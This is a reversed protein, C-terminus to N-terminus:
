QHNFAKEKYLESTDKAIQDWKYTTKVKDKGAIGITRALQENELLLIINTALSHADGPYIKLGTIGEDIIESLGGTNSVITPKGHIMAELAVIGFPEYLSPFVAINCQQFLLNRESDNIFGILKINNDLDREQVLTLYHELMPGKGAIVFLINPFRNIVLPAADIITEFGKERVIRGVSFIMQSFPAGLKEELLCPDGEAELMKEDIGNPLVVIKEKEVSFLSRVEKKMYNSCVIVSNAESVLQKEKKHIDHNIKSYLGNNRGYETAHITAILPKDLIRQLSIGAVGVLWDHSHIIDFEYRQSLKIVQDILSMNLSGVWHLFDGASPQLAGVRYIYVDEIVEYSPAGDVHATVVYVTHGIKALARSLDYVHRALGGVILPPFEWSLIVIHLGKKQTSSDLYVENQSLFSVLEVNKLFPYENELNTIFKDTITNEYLKEHLQRFRALHQFFRETAYQVCHGGDIMFSWDSSTLLFWERVLQKLAREELDTIESSASIINVLEIETKHIHPYMWANKENLWVDGFGNRGWTSFSVSSTELDKSHRKLFETCTIFEIKQQKASLISHLWDTGEFWWHGFLEADFSLVAVLFLDSQNGTWELVREVKKFFDDRHQRIKIEAKERNYLQKQENGTVRHYKLGTDVRIGKLVYPKIYDWERDYGLDRYFERYDPDGPYGIQSSWVTNTLDNNRPFLVVGHPTYIPSDVSKSSKSRVHSIAAEDVFAYTIGEKYLIKDLGHTYACEPLWFGRPRTDFHREFTNIGEFIQAKVGQTTALYPLIAHSASTTICEIKGLKFFHRFGFILNQNWRLFLEKIREYRKDYFHALQLERNDTARAIEKKILSQTKDLFSLYRAQLLPDALMELLPPSFSITWKQLHEKKELHWLLPIYTESMAEYLWREELKNEGLQRIYPLHAHLVLTTYVATM